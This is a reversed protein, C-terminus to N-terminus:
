VEFRKSLVEYFARVSKGSMGAGSNVELIKFEKKDNLILDVGCLHIGLNWVAKRVNKIIETGYLEEFLDIPVDIFRCNEQKNVFEKKKNFKMKIKFPKGYFMLIRYEFSKEEKLTAYSYNKYLKEFDEVTSVCKIKSGKRLVLEKGLMLTVFAKFVRSVSKLDFYGVSYDRIYRFMERKHLCRKIAEQTNILIYDDDDEVQSNGYNLKIKLPVLGKPMNREVRDCTEETRGCRIIKM